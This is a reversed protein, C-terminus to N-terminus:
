AAGESEDPWTIIFELQRGCADCREPEDPESNQPNELSDLDDWVVEYAVDTEDGGFGCEECAQSAARANELRSLRKELSM